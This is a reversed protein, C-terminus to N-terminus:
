FSSLDFCMCPVCVTHATVSSTTWVYWWLQSCCTDVPGARGRTSCPNHQLYQLAFFCMASCQRGCVGCVWKKGDGVRVQLTARQRGKGGELV